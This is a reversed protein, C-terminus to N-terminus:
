KGRERMIVRLLFLPLAPFIRKVRKPEKATRWLWELGLKQVFIPARKINGAWVDFSGGVGVMLTNPLTQKLNYIFEEQRPSGMAVLLLAPQKAKLEEIIPAPDTFYGDHRYIINAGAVKEVVGPAAGVLAASECRKLLAHAFEIGPIRRIKHGLIKLGLEVGIGDPIVLEAERLIQAFEPNRGAETIMEPNVTVVQGCKAFDLAEVFTLADIGVGQLMKRDM